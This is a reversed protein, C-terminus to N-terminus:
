TICILLSAIYNKIKPSPLDLAVTRASSPVNKQSSSQTAQWLAQTLRPYDIYEPNSRTASPADGSARLTRRQPRVPSLVTTHKTNRGTTATAEQGALWCPSCARVHQWKTATKHLLGPRGLQTLRSRRSSWCATIACSRRNLWKSKHCCAKSKHFCAKVIKSQATCALSTCSFSQIM